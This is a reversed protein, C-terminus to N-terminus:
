LKNNRHRKMIISVAIMAIIMIVIEFGPTSFGRSRITMQFPVPTGVYGSMNGQPPSFEPTLELTITELDNHWGFDFPPTISFSMYGINNGSEASPIIVQTQSLLPTWGKPYDVIKITVLTQKNGLNTIRIPFNVTEQPSVIRSPKETYVDILPIYGPQFVIDVYADRAPVHNNLLPDTEAKLKLTFGEAPADDHAAIVISTQTEVMETQIDVYPNPNTISIAAWDPDNLVTLKVRASVVIFTQLFIIRLWISKLIQPPMQVKFRITLPISVPPGDPQFVADNVAQTDYDMELVPEFTLLKASAPPNSNTISLFSLSLIIGIIFSVKIARLHKIM